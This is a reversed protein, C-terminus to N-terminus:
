RTAFDRRPAPPTPGRSSPRSARVRPRTSRRRRRSSCSRPRTSPAATCTTAEILALVTDLASPALEVLGRTFVQVTTRYDGRAQDPSAVQLARPITDTYLHNWTLAKFSDAEFSRTTAAGFSNENPGVRYLDSIDTSLVAERLATAVVNYPHPATNAAEDWVSRVVGLSGVSVVNGARRIFHRCCSCEHETQKRFIPNTGAPFAALYCQYLEDGDISTVYVEPAKVVAQFSESVTRAFAPFKNITM